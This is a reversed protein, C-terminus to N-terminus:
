QPPTAPTRPAQAVIERAMSVLTSWRIPCVADDGPEEARIVLALGLLCLMTEECRRADEASWTDKLQAGKSAYYAQCAEAYEPFLECFVLDVLSRYREATERDIVFGLADQYVGLSMLADFKPFISNPPCGRSKRMQEAADRDLREMLAAPYEIFGFPQM